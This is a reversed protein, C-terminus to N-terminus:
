RFRATTNFCLALVGVSAAALDKAGNHKSQSAVFSAFGGEM